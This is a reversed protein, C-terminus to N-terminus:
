VGGSAKERDYVSRFESDPLRASPTWSKVLGIHDANNDDYSKYATFGTAATASGVVANEVYFGLGLDTTNNQTFDELTLNSGIIFAIPKKMAMTSSMGYGKIKCEIPATAKKGDETKFTFEFNLTRSNSYQKYEGSASGSTPSASIVYDKLSSTNEAPQATEVAALSGSLLLISLLKLNKM